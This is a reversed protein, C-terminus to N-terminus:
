WRHMGRGYGRPGRQGFYSDATKRQESTLVAYLDSMATSMAQMGALHQTMSSIHLTLKEPVTTGSRAAQWHQEHTAQMLKAQEAAKTTFAQWASEQQANIALDTKLQALIRESAIGSGGGWMGGFGPGMGAGPGPGGYMMGPGAAGPGTGDCGGFWGPAAAVATVAVLALAGVTGAIIKHIRKMIQEKQKGGTTGPQAL